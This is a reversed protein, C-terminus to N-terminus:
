CVEFFTFGNSCPLQFGKRFAQLEPHNPPETGIISRYLWRRILPRTSTEYVLWRIIFVFSVTLSHDTAYHLPYAVQMDHYSAFYYRFQSIDGRPGINLWDLIMHKLEPHWEGGRHKARKRPHADLPQISSIDCDDSSFTYFCQTWRSLPWAM